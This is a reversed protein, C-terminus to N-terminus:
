VLKMSNYNNLRVVFAMAHIGPPDTSPACIGCVKLNVGEEMEHANTYTAGVITSYQEVHYAEPPAPGVHPQLGLQVFRLATIIAVWHAIGSYWSCINVPCTQPIM